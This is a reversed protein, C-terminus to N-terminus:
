VSGIDKLHFIQDGTKAYIISIADIRAWAPYQPFIQLFYQATLTIKHLKKPTIAELPDILSGEERAKVEVFVLQEQDLFV